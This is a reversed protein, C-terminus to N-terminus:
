PLILETWNLQETMDLEKCSWPSCCVLSGQGDGVGLAEWVWSSMDLSNTIGDLWRMRQCGRRRRRGEIKELMLIEESDARRKLHGFYVFCSVPYNELSRMDNNMSSLNGINKELYSVSAQITLSLGLNYSNSIHPPLPLFDLNPFGQRSYTHQLQRECSSSNKDKTETKQKQVFHCM